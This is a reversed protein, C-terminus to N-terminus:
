CARKEQPEHLLNFRGFKYSISIDLNKEGDNDYVESVDIRDILEVVIARTLGDITICEKIRRIWGSLDKEVRRCEVLEAELQEVEASLKAQEEGYKLSMRKFIDATVEGSRKDEYLNMLIRDIERIRNKSERITKEYRQVNKNNFEDSAKLIEDILKQEDEVALVAYEQIDALVAQYLTNYDVRHPPCVNKGKQVYTSCRYFETAGGTKLVKRSFVLNGGCDSCKIVGAFISVEGKTSRRRVTQSDNKRGVQQAELWMEKSVLPTHTDEVIIWDDFDKKVVNHNKFSVTKRKCNAMAGYYVPNKIINMITASGWKNKNNRFPNPKGLKSYFYENATLINESNFVDAIARGTKGGLYMEFIRVVNHAVNEDIALIHRSEASKMYGYPARSNSFKGQDAMLKKTSRVKRSVDAAYMENMIEKIPTSINYTDDDASDHNDHIAIYRVGYETFLERHRGAEIYNRGLRSLDKTIVCDIQGNEIDGMMAQFGPRRFTTGTTDDDIYVKYVSWGRENAYATLMAEQNEISLSVDKKGNKLDERSLRCYIGTNCIGVTNATKLTKV